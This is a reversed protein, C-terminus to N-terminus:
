SLIVLFWFQWETINQIKWATERKDQENMASQKWLNPTIKKTKAINGFGYWQQTPHFWRPNKNQNALSM